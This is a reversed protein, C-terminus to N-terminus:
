INTLKNRIDCYTEKFSINARMEQLCFKPQEMLDGDDECGEVTWFTQGGEVSKHVNGELITTVVAM